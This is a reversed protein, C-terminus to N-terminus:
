LQEDSMSDNRESKVGVEVIQPKGDEIPFPMADARLPHFCADEATSKGYDNCADRQATRGTGINDDPPRYGLVFWCIAAICIALQHYISTNMPEDLSLCFIALSNSGVSGQSAFNVCHRTNM